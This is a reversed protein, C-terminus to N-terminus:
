LKKSASTIENVQEELHNFQINILSYFLSLGGVIFLSLVAVAGIMKNRYSTNKEIQPQMESIKTLATAISGNQKIQHEKIGRVEGTLLNLSNKIEQSNVSVSQSVSQHSEGILERLDDKSVLIYKEKEM